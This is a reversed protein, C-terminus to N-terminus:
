NANCEKEIEAAEKRLVEMAEVLLDIEDLDILITGGDTTGNADQRLKLFCGGAEDDLSVHTCTEGFIPSDGESHITYSTSRLKYSM